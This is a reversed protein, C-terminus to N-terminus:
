TIVAMTRATRAAARLAARVRAVEHSHFVAIAGAPAIVSVRGVVRRTTVTMGRPRGLADACPLTDTFPVWLSVVPDAKVAPSAATFQDLVARLREADDPELDAVEGVPVAVMVRGDPLPEVAVVRRRRGVDDCRLTVTADPQGTRLETLMARERVEFQTRL